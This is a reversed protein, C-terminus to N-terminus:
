PNGRLRPLPLSLLMTPRLISGPRRAGADDYADWQSNAVYVFAGRWLTGITPATARDPQRDLVDLQTIRSIAHDLTFRVIRAPEVGNQVGVIGGQDWVIGDVGLSTTHEADRLRVVQLTALDLRLLGHSYDALVLQEAGPVPAIGQLSRFLPHRIGELSDLGTRLRFLIPADSDSAYVTGSEDIALDGLLHRKGDAPVDWRQLVVGDAIRVRLVAAISSDAATYGEMASIGAITAYLSAGDPAVRVGLVAGMRKAGPAATRGVHLDRVHGDAGVELITKHRISAVYFMGTSPHVDIGEAFVTSDPMTALLVSGMRTATASALRTLEADMRMSSVARLLTSDRLLEAGSGLQALMTVAERVAASDATRAGFRALAVWYAPQTPWAHAARRLLRMAESADTARTASRYSSRAANASDVSPLGSQAHVQQATAPFIGCMVWAIARRVTM